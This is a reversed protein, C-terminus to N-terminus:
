VAPYLKGYVHNFSWYAPCHKSFRLRLRRGSRILRCALYMLEQIVTKLRRRKGPHRVPSKEGLLGLQGIFRLINYAFCGLAMVASNTAFKGSPLRELDLDSKFESHFQESLGHNQYLSIIKEEPLDLNSWWGEVTIEPILLLQGNRDTSREIVRVTKTFKFFEGKHEQSKQVTLFAVKKGDRPNTIRGKSFAQKHLEATDERRPNWKIIYSVKDAKRLLVRNEIADHGSDLRVLLKKKTLTRARDLVRKMHDPFGEQCHQSGSRLEVELCWGELGLYAAIPAYGVFGKYTYGINEKKTDSNDMPFVDVDLPIHGTDLATIQAKGNKLMNVSCTNAIDIYAEAQEDLRQRLREASPINGIGLSQKFYEDDRMSSVAEYDSKGLCLLGLYSRLLDTHSIINSNKGIKRNIVQNLKSYRNICLGALALGSHSTYFEDDSQEIIFRKM